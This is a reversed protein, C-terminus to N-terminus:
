SIGRYKAYSLAGTWVLLSTSAVNDFAVLRVIREILDFATDVNNGKKAVFDFKADGFDFIAEVNSGTAAVNNSTHVPSLVYAELIDINITSL